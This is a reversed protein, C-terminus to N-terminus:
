RVAPRGLAAKAAAYEIELVGHPGTVISPRKEAKEVAHILAWPSPPTQGDTEVHLSRSDMDARVTKVGPLAYLQNAITQAEDMSEMEHVVITLVGQPPQQEAALKEPKTLTYTAVTTALRSPAGGARDVAEWSQPLSVVASRAPTVIVLHDKLSVAVSKVGSTTYLQSAVKRACGKCCMGDAVIRIEGTATPLSAETAAWIAPSEWALVALIATCYERATLTFRLLHM